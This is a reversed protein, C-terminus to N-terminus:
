IKQLEEDYIQELTHINKYVDRNKVDEFQSQSLAKAMEPNSLIEISKNVFLTLSKYHPYVPNMEKKSAEFFDWCILPTGTSCIDFGAYGAPRDNNYGQFWSLDLHENLATEVINQQHGRFFVKDTLNLNRIYRNMGETEPNGNGFIHLECNPIRELLLQFSYFFPDLPKYKDLRTFIGIKKISSDEFKWHNEKRDASLVLPFFRHKINEFQSFEYDYENGSFSSIFNYPYRFDFGKYIDPNQFRASMSNIFSKRVIFDPLDKYFTYEGMWHILDYGSLFAVLRDKKYHAPRYNKSFKRVIRTVISKQPKVSFDDFYIIETGLESHKKDYYRNWNPNPNQKANLCLISIQYKEKNLAKDIEYAYREAGGQFFDAVVFLIKAKSM